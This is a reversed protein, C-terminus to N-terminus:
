EPQIGSAKVIKGALCLDHRIRAVFEEPTSTGILMDEAAVISIAMTAPSVPFRNKHM